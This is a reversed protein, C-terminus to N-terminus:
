ARRWGDILTPFAARLAALDDADWLSVRTWPDHATGWMDVEYRCRAKRRLFSRVDALAQKGLRRRLYVRAIAGAAFDADAPARGDNVLEVDRRDLTRARRERDGVSPLFGGGTGANECGGDPRAM